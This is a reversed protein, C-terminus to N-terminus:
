IQSLFSRSISDLLNLFFGSAQIQLLFVAIFRYFIFFLFLGLETWLFFFRSVVVLETTTLLWSARILTELCLQGKLEARFQEWQLNKIPRRQGFRCTRPDVASGVSPWNQLPVCAGAECAAGEAHCGSTQQQPSVRGFLM